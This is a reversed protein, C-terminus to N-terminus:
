SHIARFSNQEKYCKTVSRTETGDKNATLEFLSIDPEFRTGRSLATVLLRMVCRFHHCNNLLYVIGFSVLKYFQLDHIKGKTSLPRAPPTSYLKAPSCSTRVLINTFCKIIHSFAINM